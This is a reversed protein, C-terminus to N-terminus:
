IIYHSFVARNRETTRVWYIFASPLFAPLLLPLADQKAKRMMGTKHIALWVNVKQLAVMFPLFNNVQELYDTLCFAPFHWPM